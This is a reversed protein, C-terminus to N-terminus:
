RRRSYQTILRDLGNAFAQRERPGLAPPGSTEVGAARLGDLFDRASLREGINEATYMDGRPSLAVGGLAVVRDALPIDATIVLDGKELRAVIEKDAVDLGQRVHVRSIFSSQPIPIARNAVLIVQLQARTAAKYVIERIVVPCADGDVWIKM